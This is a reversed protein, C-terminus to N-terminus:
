LADADQGAHEYEMWGWVAGPDEVMANHGLGPLECARPDFRRLDAVDALGDHEGCALVFPAAAAACLSDLPPPGVAYARSETALRWGPDTGAVHCIGARAIPDDWPVLGALGSAKLYTEIAVREDAFLRAPAAARRALGEVEADSWVSKLGLGLVRDPRLGFWGSALALAIVAGLSHGVLVLEDFPREARILTAVAEAQSGPCYDRLVGSRGHGPLDPALWRGRWSRSLVGQLPRWVERTAGLGHLLVLLSSGAGGRDASLLM